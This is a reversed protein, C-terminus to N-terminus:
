RPSYVETHVANIRRFVSEQKELLPSDLLYACLTDVAHAQAFQDWLQEVRVAADGKGETLLTPACEGCVLVGPRRSTSARLADVLVPSVAKQFLLEDPWDDVMFQSLMDSPDLVVYRKERIAGDLDVGRTQLRQQMACRRSDIALLIVTHGAGLATQAAQTWANLLSGEDAYFGAEHRHVHEQRTAVAVPAASAGVFRGGQSIAEM